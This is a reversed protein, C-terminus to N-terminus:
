GNAARLRDKVLAAAEDFDSHLLHESIADLMEEISRSWIIQKLESLVTAATVEDYEECAKQILPLKENLFAMADHSDETVVTNNTNSNQKNKEIVKRLEELFVPTDSMMITKDEAKGAQELKFAKASLGMEGINALASKMAHVDIVYQRIDETRRFSNVYIANLRTIAKEADRAFIAALEPDSSQQMKKGMNNKLAQQQAAEVVETPYKDRVFKNLLVNLQRIDIPKSIFGDFGNAMFMEAQGAIANATLAVITQKYGMGRIIKTTEVGDMKPMFHDMFIIDYVMGKKIKEVADYGSGATEILLGYPSMLGKAVYLNTEVDDVVLVKGYPMYERIIQPAKKMQSMRGLRFQKLNDVMSKGLVGSDVIGQPLRVTFTSGVGPESEIFIEGNMLNILHRTINMGLGAGEVTRNAEPNFRTFEDFLKDVQERTMGQGTDSVSFVLTLKGAENQPTNDVSISLSVKGENTYKFANSLLNNLIQKIRLEDGFLTLPINEDVELEFAFPKSDFRMINLYVTDNILSPVDYNVPLLELRGAEIKSLDLIDNIIGLLLYGSNYIKGFVEQMDHSLTEDQMQIETIGLIANMPTRVEHSMRSLFQSKFRNSQEAKEKAASLETIDVSHQIHAVKGNQWEIYRDTNRYIHKTLDNHEEWIIVSEPDKDLKYCPCFSCKENMGTQFIKYCLQGIGDDKVNFHERMNNNVFLIEGTEPVTVYIMADLGNLINSMISISQESESVQEITSKLQSLDLIYVALAHENGYKVRVLTIECPIPDGNLKQHMWEFRCYGDSFAKDVYEDMKESSLRGDQQYEPSLQQFKDFYEQKSSLGFLKVAYENCDIFRSDKYHINAGLPMSDFMIRVREESKARASIIKLLIASLGSALLTGLIILVLRIRRLERYYDNEATIVGIYWGNEIQRIFFVSSDGELNKTKYESITEGRKLKNEVVAASSDVESLKRGFFKANSHSLLEMQESLLFGYGLTGFNANTMYEIIRNFRLNLAIVGLLTGNDDFLARAYTIIISTTAIDAYPQLFVISGGAAVAEKYWASERPNYTEATIRDQSDFFMGDFVDFYGYFGSFGSLHKDDDFLIYDTLERLYERVTAADEDHLIMSRVTQVLNGLVTRPEMLDININTELSDLIAQANYIMHRRLISGMYWSSLGIMLAFALFIGVVQGSTIYTQVKKIISRM